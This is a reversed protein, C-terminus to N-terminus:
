KSYRWKNRIKIVISHAILGYVFMEILFLLTMQKMSIKISIGNVKLYLLLLLGAALFRFLLASTPNSKRSLFILFAPM